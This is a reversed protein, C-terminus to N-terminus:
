VPRTQGTRKAWLICREQHHHNQQPKPGAETPIFHSFFDGGELVTIVNRSLDLITTDLPLYVSIMAVSAIVSLSGACVVKRGNSAVQPSSTKSLSRAETTGGIKGSGKSGDKKRTICTCGPPCADILLASTLLCLLLIRALRNIWM